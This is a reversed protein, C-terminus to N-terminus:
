GRSITVGDELTLPAGNAWHQETGPELAQRGVTIGAERATVRWGGKAPLLEGGPAQEPLLVKLPLHKLVWVARRGQGVGATFELAVACPTGGDGHFVQYVLVAAGDALICTGRAALPRAEGRHLIQGDVSIGASGLCAAELHPGNVRFEIHGARSLTQALALCYSNESAEERSPRLDLHNGFEEWSGRGMRLAPGVVVTWWGDHVWWRDVTPIGDPPEMVALPKAAPAPQPAPPTEFLFGELLDAARVRNAPAAEPERLLALLSRAVLPRQDAAEPDEITVAALELRLEDRQEAPIEPAWGEVVAEAARVGQHELLTAVYERRASQMQERAQALLDRVPREPVSGFPLLHPRQGLLRQCLSAVVFWAPHTEGAIEQAQAWTDKAREPSRVRNARQNAEFAEEADMLLQAFVGADPPRTDRHGIASHILRDLVPPAFDVIESLPEPVIWPSCPTGSFLEYLLVGLRYIDERLDSVELAEAALEPPTYPDAWSAPSRELGTRRWALPLTADLLRVRNDGTVMVAEPRLRGHVRGERHLTNLARAVQGAVHFAQEPLVGHSRIGLVERLSRGEVWPSMLYPWRRDPAAAPELWGSEHPQVVLEVDAEAPNRRQREPAPLDDGSALLEPLMLRLARAKSTKAERVKIVWGTAGQCLWGDYVLRADRDLPAGSGPFNSWPTM